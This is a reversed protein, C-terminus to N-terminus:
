PNNLPSPTPVVVNHVRWTEQKYTKAGDDPQCGNSHGSRRLILQAAILPLGPTFLPGSGLQRKALDLPPYQRLHLAIFVKAWGVIGGCTSVAELKNTIASHGININVGAGTPDDATRASQQCNHVIMRPFQAYYRPRTAQRM